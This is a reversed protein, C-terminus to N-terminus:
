WSYSYKIAWVVAYNSLASINFGGDEFSQNALPSPNNMSYIFQTYPIIYSHETIKYAFGMENTIQYQTVGTTQNINANSGQTLTGNLTSQVLGGYIDIYPNLNSSTLFTQKIGPLIAYNSSTIKDGNTDSYVMSWNHGAELRLYPTLVYSDTANFSYGLKIVLKGGNPNNEATQPVNSFAPDQSNMNYKGYLRGEYYFGNARTQSFYIFADPGSVLEETAVGVSTITKNAPATGLVGSYAELKAREAAVHKLLQIEKLSLAPASEKTTLMQAKDDAMKKLLLVEKDTLVPKTTTNTTNKIASEAIFSTSIDSAFCYSFNIILFLYPINKFTM